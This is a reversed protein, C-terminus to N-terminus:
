FTFKLTTKFSREEGYAISVQETFNGENLIFGLEEILPEKRSCFIDEDKTNKWITLGRTKGKHLFHLILEGRV